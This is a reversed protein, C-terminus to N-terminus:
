AMEHVTRGIIDDQTAKDLTVFLASYGAVRVILDRYNEPHKQADILTETSIMNFQVHWGKLAQFGRLLQVWRKLGAETALTSPSLRLNLLQAIMKVTQLKTVSRMVATPGNTDTGHVPSVGEAIPEGALRGDPTACVSQGLPVNSSINSTSGAYACGIPGRGYRTTHYKDVERLYDELVLWALQDVEDIDNGYKPAHLLRQRVREGDMGDFNTELANTVQAASLRKEEFVLKKLAMLGNAVNAVGSQPGSIIDYVSGGEKITKGRSLCDDVLTSCFADPALEELAMDAVTDFTVSSWTYYALQDRFAEYLGDYSAFDTLLGRGPHLRAGTNPDRGDNYALEFVKLLNLFTMGTNRFGWKGPVAAEVCGVMAYDYADEPMVGKELLAPIIIEDNKMAPMGFGLKITRACEILFRDPTGAHYRASVNPQTLRTDRITRLVMYSLDNTADRGERTQGGVTVNQYTAYGIGFRTHSWPRIKNVSFLKLWLLQLLELAREETIRGAALDAQYFPYIYQDLRGLSFSHGNSEIQTLLHVFWATQLAEQFTRAPKAPVRHCIEAIELLEQRRLPDTTESALKEALDAYRAAFRIAGQLAIVVAHYFARAQLDKMEALPRRLAQEARAILSELGENLVRPINVIIHGDGSTINGRGSIVGIEQATRVEEPLTAMARGYLTRGRWYPLIDQLLERKAEPEVIFQDASRNM